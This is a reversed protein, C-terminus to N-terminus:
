TGNKEGVAVGLCSTRTARPTDTSTFTAASPNTNPRRSCSAILRCSSPPTHIRCVNGAM